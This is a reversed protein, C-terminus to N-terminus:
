RQSESTAPAAHGEAPAKHDLLMVHGADGAAAVAAPALALMLVPAM